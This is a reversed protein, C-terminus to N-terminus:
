VDQGYLRLEKKLRDLVGKLQIAQMPPLENAQQFAILDSYIVLCTRVTEGTATDREKRDIAGLAILARNAEILSEGFAAESDAM